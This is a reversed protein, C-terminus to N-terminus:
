FSHTMQVQGATRIQKCKNHLLSLTVSSYEDLTNPLLIEPIETEACLSWCSCLKIAHSVLGEPGWEGRKTFKEWRQLECFEYFDWGLSWRDPCCSLTLWPGNMLRASVSPKHSPLASTMQVSQQQKAESNISEFHYRPREAQSRPVSLWLWVPYHLCPWCDWKM